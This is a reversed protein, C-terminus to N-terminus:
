QQYSIASLQYSRVAHYGCMGHVGGGPPTSASCFFVNALPTRYMMGTPRLFMQRLNIAGGAIDGGVLNANRRELEAPGMSHRGIIRARFGPAFREVQEEIAATMDAKSGNPVHCYAWLTHQGAPARTTDFLTHQATLVFPRGTFRGEWEAIEELTGGLHVTGARACEPARWPVPADLAWDVKFVGPGYRFRALRKRFDLPLRDAAIELLQRPTVDCMVVDGDPLATVQSETRIEGGLQRLYGALADSLRQAGGRPFPWGCAHGTIAMVMGISASLPRDLPMISHAALGAFLARAREGRFESRAFGAASRIGEFGFRAMLVANAPMRLPALVDHRLEPWAEVYPAFVRKWARGDPGLGAATADLSRELLVATGDDLPHALPADPHVWELGHEALPFMEFCPSCAAMPHVGSCVDHVFGPLTLEESRVGGGVQGSAEHVTVALGARALLIAAALGNPGSGIVIARRDGVEEAITSSICFLRKPLLSM